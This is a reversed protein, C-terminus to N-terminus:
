RAAPQFSRHDAEIQARKGLADIAAIPHTKADAFLPGRGRQQFFKARLKLKQVLCIGQMAFRSEQYMRPNQRVEDLVVIEEINALRGYGLEAQFAFQLDRTKM